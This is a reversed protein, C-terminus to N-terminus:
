KFLGVYYADAAQRMTEDMTIFAIYNGNQRIVTAKLKAVAEASYDANSTILNDIYAQLLGKIATAASSDTAEILVVADPSMADFNLYVASQAVTAPDIGFRQQLDTGSYEVMDDTNGTTSMIQTYVDQLNLSVAPAPTGKCAQLAFAALSLTILILLFRKM